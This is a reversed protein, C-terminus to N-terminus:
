GIAAYVHPHTEAIEITRRDVEISSIAGVSIVTGVGADAARTLVGELDADVKRDALHCHTDIISEM